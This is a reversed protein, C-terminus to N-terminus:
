PGEAQVGRSVRLKDGRVSAGRALFWSQHVVGRSSGGDRSVHVVRPRIQSDPVVGGRQARAVARLAM